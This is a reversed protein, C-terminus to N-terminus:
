RHLPVAARQATTMQQEATATQSQVGGSRKEDDQQPKPAAPTQLSDKLTQPMSSKGIFKEVGLEAAYDLQFSVKRAKEAVIAEYLAELICRAISPYIAQVALVQRRLLAGTIMLPFVALPDDIVGLIVEFRGVAIHPPRVNFAGTVSQRVQVPFQSKMFAVARSALPLFQATVDDMEIPFAAVMQRVQEVDWPQTLDKLVRDYNVASDDYKLDLTGKALQRALRGIRAEMTMASRLKDATFREVRRSLIPSIGITALVAEAPQIASM